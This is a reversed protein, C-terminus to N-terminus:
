AAAQRYMARRAEREARAERAARLRKIRKTIEGCTLLLGLYTAHDLVLRTCYDAEPEAKFADIRQLLDSQARISCNREPLAIHLNSANSM